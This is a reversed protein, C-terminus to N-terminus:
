HVHGLVNSLNLLKWLCIRISYCGFLCFFPFNHTINGFSKFLSKLGYNEQAFHMMETGKLEKQKGKVYVLSTQRKLENGEWVEMVEKVFM